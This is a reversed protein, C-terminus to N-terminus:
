LSFFGVLFGSIKNKIALHHSIVGQTTSILFVTSGSKKNLLILAKLSIFFKKSPKSIIKFNHGIKKNKYFYLYIRIFNLSNLKFFVYKYIFNFTKLIKVFNLNRKSFILNFFLSKKSRNINILNIVYATSFGLLKSVRSEFGYENFGFNLAKGILSTEM